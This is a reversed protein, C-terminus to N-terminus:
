NVNSSTILRRCTPGVINRCSGRLEGEELVRHAHGPQAEEEDAAAQEEMWMDCTNPQRRLWGRLEAISWVNRYAVDLVCIPIYLFIVEIAENIHM